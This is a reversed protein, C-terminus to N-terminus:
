KNRPCCFCLCSKMEALIQRRLQKALTPGVLKVALSSMMVHLANVRTTELSLPAITGVIGAVLLTPVDVHVHRELTQRIFEVWDDLPVPKTPSTM